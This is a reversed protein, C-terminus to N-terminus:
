KKPQNKETRPPESRETAALDRPVRPPLPLRGEAPMSRRADVELYYRLLEDRLRRADAEAVKHRESLETYNERLAEYRWTLEKMDMDRKALERELQRIQEAMQGERRTANALQMELAEQRGMVGRLLDREGELEAMLRKQRGDLLKAVAAGIATTAAMLVPMLASPDM